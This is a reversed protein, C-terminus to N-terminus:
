EAPEMVRVKVTKGRGTQRIRHNRRKELARISGWIGVSVMIGIIAMAAILRDEM